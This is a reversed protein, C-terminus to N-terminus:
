GHTDAEQDCPGKRCTPCKLGDADKTWDWESSPEALLLREAEELSAFHVDGDEDQDYVYACCACEVTICPGDLQRPKHPLSYDAAFKAATEETAFHMVGDNDLDEGDDHTLVWCTNAM